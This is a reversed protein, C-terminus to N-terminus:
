ILGPSPYTKTTFAGMINEIKIIVDDHRKQGYIFVKFHM